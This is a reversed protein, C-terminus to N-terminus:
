THTHTIDHCPYHLFIASIGSEKGAVVVAVALFM